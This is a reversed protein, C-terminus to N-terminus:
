GFAWTSYNSLLKNYWRWVKLRSLTHNDLVLKLNDFPVLQQVKLMQNQWKKGIRKKKCMCPLDPCSIRITESRSSHNVHTDEKCTCINNYPSVIGSSSCQVYFTLNSQNAGFQQARAQQFISGCITFLSIPSVEQICYMSDIYYM